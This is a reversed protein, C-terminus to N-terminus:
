SGDEVAQEAVAVLTIELRQGQAENTTDIPLHAALCVVSSEGPALVQSGSTVTPDPLELLVNSESGLPSGTTSLDFPPASDCNSAPWAGLRLWQGLVGGGSIAEVGFRFTLDGSNVIELRGSVQDGPALNEASFVATPQGDVPSPDGAQGVGEGSLEIDLTAAGLRNTGVVEADSIAASSRQSFWAVVAPISVAMVAVLLASLIVAVRHGHRHEAHSEGHHGPQYETQYETQYEAQPGSERM